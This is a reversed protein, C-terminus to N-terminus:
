TEIGQQRLADRIRRLAEAPDILLRAGSSKVAQELTDQRSSLWRWVNFGLRDRDHPDVTPIDAVAAYAVRESQTDPAPKVPSPPKTTM